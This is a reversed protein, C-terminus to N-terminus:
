SQEERGRPATRHAHDDGGYEDEDAAQQEGVRFLGARGGVRMERPFVAM